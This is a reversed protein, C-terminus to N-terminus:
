CSARGIENHWEERFRANERRGFVFLCRIRYCERQISSPRFRTGNIAALIRAGRLSACNSPPFLTGAVILAIRVRYPTGLFDHLRNVLPPGGKSSKGLRALPARLGRM